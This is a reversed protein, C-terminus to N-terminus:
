QTRIEIELRWLLRWEKKIKERLTLTLFFLQHRGRESIDELLQNPKGYVGLHNIEWKNDTLIKYIIKEIRSQQLFDDELIFINM